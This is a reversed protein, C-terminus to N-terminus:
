RIWLTEPDCCGLPAYVGADDGFARCAGTSDVLVWTSRRIREADFLTTESLVVGTEDAVIALGGGDPGIEHCTTAGDLCAEGYWGDAVGTEALGFRYGSPDGGMVEIILTAGVGNVPPVFILLPPVDDVCGNCDDDVGNWAESAPIGPDSDDCDEGGSESAAVGDGDGDVGDLGDCNSDVDDGAEDEAGPFIAANSDDCDGARAAVGDEDQDDGDVTDSEGSDPRIGTETEAGHHGDQGDCATLSATAAAPLGCFLATRLLLNRLMM